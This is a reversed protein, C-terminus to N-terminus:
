EKPWSPRSRPPPSAPAPWCRPRTPPRPTPCTTATTTRAGALLPALQRFPAAGGPPRADVIAGRAAVQPDAAVEAIDLVPAVCTDADALLAVWEDRTAAPSCAASTPGSRTRCRTTPSTSSGGSSAWCGASTPGSCPSSPAWALWGGDGTPYVDYCAYRGTLIYHGPGPVEGTALYEDIYLSLMWLM